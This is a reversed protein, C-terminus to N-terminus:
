VLRTKGTLLEQMMGQKLARTKDRKQELAAIEADMDLLITAIAQQEIVSEPMVVEFNKVQTSNAATFTSGQELGKWANESFVLKHYLFDKDVDNPSLACVGRGLCSVQTAIGVAGVPARVTLVLDDKACAKPAYTTWVRQITKRNEIDANGQILPMGQSNTNYYKSDPSQGMEITAIEALTKSNWKGDFGPLRRKGTLLEQMAGQKIDRKKAILKDLATILADVDSLAAAIAHQEVKTPPFPIILSVLRGVPLQKLASGTQLGGFQRQSSDFALIFGIYRHDFGTKGPNLRVLQANINSDIHRNPVFAIQGIEGRTTVLIDNRKLHGRQLEAHLSTSIYRLDDDIIGMGRVNNARIFPVGVARFDSSKPYKGAYNGDSIDFHLDKIPKVDWDDPIVGVETLKYGAMLEM